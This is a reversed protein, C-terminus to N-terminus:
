EYKQAAKKVDREMRRKEILEMQKGRHYYYGGFFMLLSLLILVLPLGLYLAPLMITTVEGKLDLMRDPINVGCSALKAFDNTTVFDLLSNLVDSSYTIVGYASGVVLVLGLLVLVVATLKQRNM